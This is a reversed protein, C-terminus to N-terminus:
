THCVISGLGSILEFCREISKHNRINKCTQLETLIKKEFDFEPLILCKDMKANYRKRRLIIFNNTDSYDIM